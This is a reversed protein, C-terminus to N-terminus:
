SAKEEPFAFWIQGAPMEFVSFKGVWQQSDLEASAVMRGGTPADFLGFHTVPGWIDLAEPFVVAEINEVRHNKPLTFDILRREYGAGSVEGEAKPGPARGFLGVYLRSPAELKQGRYIANLWADKLWGPTM